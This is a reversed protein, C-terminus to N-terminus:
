QNDKLYKYVETNNITNLFKNQNPTDFMRYFVMANDWVNNLSNIIELKETVYWHTNDYTQWIEIAIQKMEEFIEESPAEFM